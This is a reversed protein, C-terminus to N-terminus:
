ICSSRRSIRHRRKTREQIIVSMHVPELHAEDPEDQGAFHVGTHPTPLVKLILIHASFVREVKAKVTCCPMSSGTRQDLDGSSSSIDTYM